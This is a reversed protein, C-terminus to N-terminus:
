KSLLTITSSSVSTTNTSFMTSEMSSNSTQETVIEIIRGQDIDFQILSTGESSSSFSGSIQQTQGAQGQGGQGGFSLKGVTTSKSTVLINAVSKNNIKEVSYLLAQSQIQMTGQQNGQMTITTNYNWTGNVAVPKDPLVIFLPSPTTNQSTPKGNATIEMTTERAGRGMGGMMGMMGGGQFGGEPRTGRSTTSGAPPEGGGPFGGEPRQGGTPPVRDSWTSDRTIKVQFSQSSPAASIAVTQLSWTTVPVNASQGGFMGGGSTSDRSETKYKLIDGAKFKYQLTYTPNNQAPSVLTWLLLSILLIFKLILSNKTKM